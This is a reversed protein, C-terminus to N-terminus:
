FAPVTSQDDLGYSNFGNDAAETQSNKQIYLRYPHKNTFSQLRIYPLEHGWHDKPFLKLAEAESIGHRKAYRRAKQAQSAKRHVRNYNEYGHITKPVSRIQTMELYDAYRRLVNSLDMAALEEKTTAFVRLKNGLTSIGEDHYGPFSIGITGKERGRMEEALAIHIQAFIEAWVVNLSIEAPPMLTIEQYYLLM